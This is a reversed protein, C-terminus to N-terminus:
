WVTMAQWGRATVNRFGGHNAYKYSAQPQPFHQQQQLQQRWCEDFGFIIVGETFVFFCFSLLVNSVFM